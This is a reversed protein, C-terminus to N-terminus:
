KIIHCLIYDLWMQSYKKSIHIGDGSADEPLEGYSDKVADGVLLFYANHEKAMESLMKNLSEVKENTFVDNTSSKWRTVPMIAQVYIKCDPNIERITDIMAAYKEIYVSPYPWGMENVGLSIYVSDFSKDARLADYLTVNKGDLPIFENTTATNVALGVSCYIRAGCSPLGTYLRLGDTRSDGIFVAKSLSSIDHASGEKVEGYDYSEDWKYPEYGDNKSTTEETGTNAGNESTTVNAETEENANQSSTVNNETEENAKTIDANDSEDSVTVSVTDTVNDPAEDDTGSIVIVLVICILVLVCITLIVPTYDKNKRRINTDHLGMHFEKRLNKEGFINHRCLSM